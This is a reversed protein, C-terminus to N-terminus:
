NPQEISESTILSEIGELIQRRQDETAIERWVVEIGGDATGVGVLPTTPDEWDIHVWLQDTADQLEQQTWTVTKMHFGDPLDSNAFQSGETAYVVAEFTLPAVLVREADVFGDRSSNLAEFREEFEAIGLIQDEYFNQEVPSLFWWSSPEPTVVSAFQSNVDGDDTEIGYFSRQRALEPDAGDPDVLPREYEQVLPLQTAADEISSSSCGVLLVVAVVLPGTLRLSSMITLDASEAPM